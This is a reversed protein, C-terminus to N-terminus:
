PSPIWELFAEAAWGSRTDDYPAILYWWTYGDKEQPGDTIQFVEADFGLFLPESSLGPADRLRLGEGETGSIQVYGNIALEGPLPTPTGLSPDHTATPLVRPTSTPGPIVTLAALQWDEDAKPSSSFGLSFILSILLLFAATGLAGLIVWRNILTKRM